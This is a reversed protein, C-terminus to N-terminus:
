PLRKKIPLGPLVPALDTIGVMGVSPSITPAPLRMGGSGGMQGFPLSTGRGSGLDGVALNKVTGDGDSVEAALAIPDHSVGPELAKGKQAGLGQGKGGVRIRGGAALTELTAVACLHPTVSCVSNRTVIRM